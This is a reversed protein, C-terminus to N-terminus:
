EKETAEPPALLRRYELVRAHADPDLAEFLDASGPRPAQALDPAPGLTRWPLIYLVKPLEQDGSIVTEPLDVRGSTREAAVGTPPVALVGFALAAVIRGRLANM